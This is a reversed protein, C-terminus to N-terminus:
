IPEWSPRSRRRPETPALVVLSPRVRKDIWGKKKFLELVSMGVELKIRRRSILKRLKGGAFMKKAPRKSM